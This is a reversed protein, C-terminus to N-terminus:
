RVVHSLGVCGAPAPSPAAATAAAAAEAAAAVPAAGGAAVVGLEVGLARGNVDATSFELLLKKGPVFLYTLYFIGFNFKFFYVAPLHAHRWVASREENIVVIVLRRPIVRASASFLRTSLVVLIHVLQAWQGFAPLLNSDNPFM